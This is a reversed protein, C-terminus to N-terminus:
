VSRVDTSAALWLLIRVSGAHPPVQDALKRWNDTAVAISGVFDVPLCDYAHRNNAHRVGAPKRWGAQALCRLAAFGVAGSRQYFACTQCFSYRENQLAPMKARM